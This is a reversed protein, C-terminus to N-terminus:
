QPRRPERRNQLRLRPAMGVLRLEQVRHGLDLGVEARPLQEVPQELDLALQATDALPRAVPRPRDVEVEQEVALLDHLLRAQGNRM